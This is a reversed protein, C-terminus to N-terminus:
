LLFSLPSSIASPTSFLHTGSLRFDIDRPSLSNLVRNVLILLFNLPGISRFTFFLVLLLFLFFPPFLPHVLLEKLEIDSFSTNLSGVCKSYFFM